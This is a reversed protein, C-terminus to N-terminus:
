GKCHHLHKKWKAAMRSKKGSNSSEFDERTIQCKTCTDALDDAEDNSTLPVEKRKGRFLYVVKRADEDTHDLLGGARPLEQRTVDFFRRLIPVFGGSKRPTVICYVGDPSLMGNIDTYLQTLITTSLRTDTRYLFTDSTGKDLVVDWQGSAKTRLEPTTLDCTSYTISPHPHASKLHQIAAESLDLALATTEVAPHAITIHHLLELSLPSTGCGIDLVRMTCSSGPLMSPLLFHLPPKTIWDTPGNTTYFDDWFTKASGKTTTTSSSTTTATSVTTAVTSAMSDITVTTAVTSAMSDITMTPPSSTLATRGITDATAPTSQCSARPTTTGGTLWHPNSTSCSPRSCTVVRVDAEVDAILVPVTKRLVVGSEETFIYEYVAGQGYKEALSRVAKRDASVIFGKEHWLESFGFGRWWVVSANAGALDFLEKELAENAKM